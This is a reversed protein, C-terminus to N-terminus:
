FEKYDNYNKTAFMLFKEGAMTYKEITETINEVIIIEKNDFGRANKFIKLANKETVREYTEVPKLPQMVIEGNIKAVRVASITFKKFEKSIAKM